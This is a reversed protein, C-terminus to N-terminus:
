KKILITSLFIITKKNFKYPNLVDRHIIKFGLDDLLKNSLLNLKKNKMELGFEFEYNTLSLKNASSFKYKNPFSM